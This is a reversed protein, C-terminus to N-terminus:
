ILPGLTWPDLPGQMEFAEERITVGYIRWRFAIKASQQTDPVLHRYGGSIINM